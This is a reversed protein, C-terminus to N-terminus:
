KHRTLTNNSFLIVNYFDLLCDFVKLYIYIYIFIPTRSVGIYLPVGMYVLTSMYLPIGIYLPVGIYLSVGCKYYMYICISTYVYIYM